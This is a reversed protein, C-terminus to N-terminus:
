DDVLVNSVLGMEASIQALTDGKKIPGISKLGYGCYNNEKDGSFDHFKL